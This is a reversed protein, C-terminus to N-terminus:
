KKDKTSFLENIYPWLVCICSAIVLGLLLFTGASVNFIWGTEYARYITYFLVLFLAFSVFLLVRIHNKM